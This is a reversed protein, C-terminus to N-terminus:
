LGWSKACRESAFPGATHVCQVALKVEAVFDERSLHGLTSHGTYIYGLVHRPDCGQTGIESVLKLYYRM